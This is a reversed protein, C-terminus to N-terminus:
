EMNRFTEIIEADSVGERVMETILIRVSYSVKLRQDMSWACNYMGKNTLETMAQGYLIDIQEYVVHEAQIYDRDVDLGKVKFTTCGSILMSCILLFSFFLKYTDKVDEEFHLNMKISAKFAKGDTHVKEILHIIMEEHFPGMVISREAAAEAILKRGIITQNPPLNDIKNMVDKALTIYEEGYTGVNAEVYKNFEQKNAIPM